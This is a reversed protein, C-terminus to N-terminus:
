GFRLPFGARVFPDLATQVLASNTQVSAPIVPCFSVNESMLSFAIM